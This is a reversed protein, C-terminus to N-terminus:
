IKKSKKARFSRKLPLKFIIIKRFLEKLSKRYVYTKKKKKNHHPILEFATGLWFKPGTCLARDV